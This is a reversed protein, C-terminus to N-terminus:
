PIMDALYDDLQSQLVAGRHIATIIGDGNVFISTPYNFVGYQEAVTQDVDLLPTFTLGFEDYFFSRVTEAAEDQDLALIILGDDQYKEYTAQLEPMEIRCPPCWTAWFNLIVPQGAFDSLAITNGALDQAQFDYAADGIQLLTDDGPLSAISSTTDFNPIQQLGAQNNEEKAGFLNDGFILLALAVGLIALGTIIILPSRGNEGKKTVEELDNLETM